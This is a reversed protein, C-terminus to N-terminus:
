PQEWAAIAEETCPAVSTIDRLELEPAAPGVRAGSMPGNTALALWGKQEAPWYLACRARTLIVIADGKTYGTLYGFFVSRHATTVVVAAGEKM